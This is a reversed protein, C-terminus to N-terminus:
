NNETSPLVKNPHAGVLGAKSVLVTLSGCSFISQLPFTSISELELVYKSLYQLYAVTKDVLM